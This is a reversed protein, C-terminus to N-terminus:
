RPYTSGADLRCRSNSSSTTCNCSSTGGDPIESDSFALMTGSELDSERSCPISYTRDPRATKLEGVTPYDWDTAPGLKFVSFWGNRSQTTTTVVSGAGDCRQRRERFTGEVMAIIAKCLNGDEPKGVQRRRSVEFECTKEGFNSEGRQRTSLHDTDDATCSVRRREEPSPVYQEGNPGEVCMTVAAIKEGLGCDPDDDDVPFCRNRDNENYEFGLTVEAGEMDRAGDSCFQEIVTDEDVNGVCVGASECTYRVPNVRAVKENSCVTPFDCEDGPVPEAVPGNPTCELGQLPRLCETEGSTEEAECRGSPNCFWNTAVFDIPTSPSCEPASLFLENCAAPPPETTSPTGPVTVSGVSPGGVYEVVDFQCDGDDFCVQGVECFQGESLCPGGCDVDPENQNAIGDSCNPEDCKGDIESCNTQAGTEDRCNDDAFVARVGTGDDEACSEGPSCRTACFAGGCDIDTEFADLQENECSPPDCLNDDFGCLLGAACDSDTNCPAGTQPCPPCVGGCDVFTEQPDLLGNGCLDAGRPPPPVPEDGPDPDDGADPDNENANSNNTADTPEETPSDEPPTLFEDPPAQTGEEGCAFTLAFLALCMRSKAM